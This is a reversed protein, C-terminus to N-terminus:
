RVSASWSCWSIASNLVALTLLFLPFIQYTYPHGPIISGFLFGGGICLPLVSLRTHFLGPLVGLIIGAALCMAELEFGNFWTGVGVALATTFTLFSLPRLIPIKM